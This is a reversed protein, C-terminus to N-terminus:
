FVLIANVGGGGFMALDPVFYVFAAIDMGPPFWFGVSYGVRSAFPHYKEHRSLPQNTYKDDHELTGFLLHVRGYLPGSLRHRWSGYFCFDRKWLRRDEIPDHPYRWIEQMQIWQFGLTITEEFGGPHTWLKTVEMRAHGADRRFRQTRADPASLLLDFNRKRRMWEAGTEFRFEWGPDWQAKAFLALRTRRFRVVMEETPLLDLVLPLDVTASWGVVVREPIVVFHSEHAVTFPPKEYRGAKAKRNFVADVLTFAATGRYIGPVTGTVGLGLDIWEKFPDVETFISPTLRPWAPFEIDIRHRKFRTDFDEAQSYLFGFRLWDASQHSLKAEQAIYFADTMVSGLEIRYGSGAARWAEDWRWPMRFSLVKFFYRSSYNWRRDHIEDGRFEARARGAWALAAALLLLSLLFTGHRGM